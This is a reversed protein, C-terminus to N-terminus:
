SQDVFDDLNVRGEIRVRISFSERVGGDMKGGMLVVWRCIGWRGLKVQRDRWGDGCKAIRRRM